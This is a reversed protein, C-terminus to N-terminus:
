AKRAAAVAKKLTDYGVMGSLMQDGVIFAPTGGIGLTQVLQLNARIEETVAASKGANALAKPDLGVKTAAAALKDPGPTGGAFLTRHFALYKGEGMGAAALATRAAAESQPGLIPIERWVVRLRKDEALLRDVDPVSARCFGCSYDTFMVLTVDPQAAGAWAGAFPKELAAREPALRKATDRQELRAMAEPLIEPHELVYNRVIAEIRATDGAGTRAPAWVAMAVAGVILGVAAAALTTWRGSSM